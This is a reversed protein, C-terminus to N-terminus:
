RHVACIVSDGHTVNSLVTVHGSKSPLLPIICVEGSTNEVEGSIKIKSNTVPDNWFLDVSGRSTRHAPPNHYNSPHGFPSPPTLKCNGGHPLAQQVLLVDWSCDIHM